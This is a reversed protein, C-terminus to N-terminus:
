KTLFKLIKELFTYIIGGLCVSIIINAEGSNVNIGLISFSEYSFSAFSISKFIYSVILLHIVYIFWSLTGLTIINVPLWLMKIIPHFFVQIISLVFAAALITELKGNTEFGKYFYNLVLLALFNRFSRKLFNKLFEFM